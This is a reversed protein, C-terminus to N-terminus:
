HRVLQFLDTAALGLPVAAAVLVGEVVDVARRLVPSTEPRMGRATADLAAMGAAVGVMLVACAALSPPSGPSAVAALGIGTATAAALTARAPATAAYGRARLLLVAATVAAFVPGAWGGAHAAVLAGAAAIVAAACALGALYGRALDAREALESPPLPADDGTLEAEDAPVVPRPLGALRIAARPLLPAAVVSLAATGIAATVPTAGLRVVIVAVASVVAVVGAAVLTPAVVRLLLQATAAAIGAAVAAAMFAVPGPGGPVASWGAAAALAVGALATGRALALDADRRALRAASAVATAAGVGALLASPVSGPGGAAVLVAAAAAVVLVLATEFRHDRAGVAATRAAVADVPDDFVPAAPVPTAPGLRLLEGDLVGLEDLTAAAPLPGGVIGSLRWPRPPTAAAPEGVLELVMPVLEAVPVDSPLAVDVRHRPALVTLRCFLQEAVRAEKEGFAWSIDPASGLM